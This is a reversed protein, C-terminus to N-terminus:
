LTQDHVALSVTKFIINIETVLANTGLLNQSNNVLVWFVSLSIKHYKSYVCTRHTLEQLKNKPIGAKVWIKLQLCIKLQTKLQLQEIIHLLNLKNNSTPIFESVNPYISISFNSKLSM